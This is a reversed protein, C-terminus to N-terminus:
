EQEEGEIRLATQGSVKKRANERLIRLLKEIMDPPVIVNIRIM